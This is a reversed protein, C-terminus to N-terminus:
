LKATAPVTGSAAAFTARGTSYLSAVDFSWQTALPISLSVPVLIQTASKITSSGGNTAQQALGSGFDVSEIIIGTSVTKFSTLRDQARLAPAIALAGAIVFGRRMAMAHVTLM